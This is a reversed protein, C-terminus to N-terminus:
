FNYIVGKILGEILTYEIQTLFEIM